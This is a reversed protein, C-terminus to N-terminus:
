RSILPLGLGGPRGLDRSEFPHTGTGEAGQKGWPAPNGHVCVGSEGLLLHLFMGVM